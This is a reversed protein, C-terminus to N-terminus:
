FLFYIEPSSDKLDPEPILSWNPSQGGDYRHDSHAESPDVVQSNDM